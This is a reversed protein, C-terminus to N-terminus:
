DSPVQDAIASWESRQDPWIVRSVVLEEGQSPNYHDMDLKTVPDMAAGAGNGVKAAFTQAMAVEKQESM